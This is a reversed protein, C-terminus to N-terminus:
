LRHEFYGPGWAYLAISEALKQVKPYTGPPLFRGRGSNRGWYYGASEYRATYIRHSHHNIAMRRLSYYNVYDSKPGYPEVEFELMLKLGVGPVPTPIDYSLRSYTELDGPPFSTLQPSGYRQTLREEVQLSLTDQYRNFYDLMSYYARGPSRLAGPELRRATAGFDLRKSEPTKDRVEAHAQERSMKWWSPAARVREGEIAVGFLHRLYELLEPSPNQGIQSLIARGFDFLSTPELELRIAHEPIYVRIYPYGESNSQDSFVIAAHSYNIRCAFLTADHARRSRENFLLDDDFRVREPSANYDLIRLVVNFFWYLFPAESLRSDVKQYMLRYRDWGEVPDVTATFQQLEEKYFDPGSM